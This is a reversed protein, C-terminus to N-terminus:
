AKYILGHPLNSYRFRISHCGFRMAVTAARTESSIFCQLAIDPTPMIMTFIVQMFGRQHPFGTSGLAVYGQPSQDAVINARTNIETVDAYARQHGFKRDINQGMGTLRLGCRVVVTPHENTKSKQRCRM